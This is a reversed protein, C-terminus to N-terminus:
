DVVEDEADLCTRLRKQVIIQSFLFRSWSVKLPREIALKTVDPHHRLAEYIHYKAQRHEESEGTGYTCDSSPQHAFHHIKYSGKKVIVQEQCEPCFFPGQTKTVEWAIVLDGQQDNASLM